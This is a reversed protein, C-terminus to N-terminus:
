GPIVMIELLMCSILRAVARAAVGRYLYLVACTKGLFALPLSFVFRLPVAEHQIPRVDLCKEWSMWDM